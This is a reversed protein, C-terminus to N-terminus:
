FDELHFYDFDVYGGTTTTAYNFLGFRYGMFHQMLTYNMQMDVEGIQTWTKGDLSYYFNAKDLTQQHDGFDCTIKFYVTNGVLSEREREVITGPFNGTTTRMVIDKTGDANVEVCVLGYDRELAIFGAVDGTKMNGIELKVSAACKPGFTRQTLTNKASLVHNEMRGTTLRLYGPRQSLSWRTNDPNHNWQWTLPLDPGDFDDSCWLNNWQEPNAMVKMTIESPVKGVRVSTDNPDISTGKPPTRQTPNEVDFVPWGDEWFMPVLVPIRGVAGHDQFFIGYWDGEPTDVITGQAVGSYNAGWKFGMDNRLVLKGEYPGFLSDSRFCVVSRLINGTILFLYYKGDKKYLQTGEKLGNGGVIANIDESPLIIQPSSGAKWGSLDPELERIKIPAADYILYVKDNDFVLTQDHAFPTINPSKRWPENEPDRTYFVVTKGASQSFVAVYFYGNHYRISSAWSGYGYEQQGNALNQQDGDALTDYCYSIIRWNVLDYSKMVPVGPNMHMTTSTMYYANNVRIFSVDPVDAWILPNQVTGIVMAVTETGPGPKVIDDDDDSGTSTPCGTLVTGFMLAMTIVVAITGSYLMLKKMRLNRRFFIEVPM